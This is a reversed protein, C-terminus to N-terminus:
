VNCVGQDSFIVNGSLLDDLSVNVGHFTFLYYSLMGANGLKVSLVECREIMKIAGDVFLREEKTVDPLTIM